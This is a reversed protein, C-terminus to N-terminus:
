RGSSYEGFIILTILDLLILNAPFTSHMSYILFAYLINHDIRNLNQSWCKTDKAEWRRQPRASHGRGKLSESYIKPFYPPFTHAPHMQDLIPVISPSKHVRYRVKPNCLLCPFNQSASHSNAKWSPNKKMSNTCSNAKPFQFTAKFFSWGV